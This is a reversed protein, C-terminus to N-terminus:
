CKANRQLHELRTGRWFFLAVFFFLSICFQLVGPTKFLLLLMEQFSRPGATADQIIWSSRCADTCYTFLIIFLFVWFYKLLLMWRWFTRFEVASASVARHTWTTIIRFSGSGGSIENDIILRKLLPKFPLIFCRLGTWCLSFETVKSFFIPNNLTAMRLCYLSLKRLPSVPISPSPSWTTPM